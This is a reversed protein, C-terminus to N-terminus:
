TLLRRQSKNEIVLTVYSAPEIRYLGWRGTAESVVMHLLPPVMGMAELIASIGKDHGPDGLLRVDTPSPRLGSRHSHTLIVIKYDAWGLDHIAQDWEKPDTAFRWRSHTTNTLPILRWPLHGDGEEGLGLIAVSEEEPHSRAYGLFKWAALSLARRAKETSLLQDM